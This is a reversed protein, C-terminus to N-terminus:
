TKRSRLWSPITPLDCTTVTSYASGVGPKPRSWIVLSSSLDSILTTGASAIATAISPQIVGDSDFVTSVLPVLFTTGRIRRGNFFGSTRWTIRSGTGLLYAIGGQTGVTNYDTGDTWSGTAQGTTSDIVEGAAEVTVNVDTPAYGMVVDYFDGFAATAGSPASDLYHTSVGPGIVGSGGWAVRVRYLDAM